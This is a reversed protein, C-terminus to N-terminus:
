ELGYLDEALIQRVTKADSRIMGFTRHAVRAHKGNRAAREAKASPKGALAQLFSIVQPAANQPVDELLSEIQRNRTM